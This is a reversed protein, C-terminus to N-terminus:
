RSASIVELQAAPSYCVEGHDWLIMAGREKYVANHVFRVVLGSRCEKTISVTSRVLDGVKM